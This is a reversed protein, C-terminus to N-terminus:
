RATIVNKGSQTSYYASALRAFLRASFYNVGFGVILGLGPILKAFSKELVMTAIRRYVRTAFQNQWESVMEPTVKVFKLAPLSLVEGLNLVRDEDRIGYAWALFHLSATQIRASFFLDLPLTIPIFWFGGVSTIAGVIGARLSQGQSANPNQSQLENYRAQLASLDPTFMRQGRRIVLAVILIALAAPVVCLLVLIWVWNNDLTM